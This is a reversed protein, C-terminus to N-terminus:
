SVAQQNIQQLKNKYTNFQDAVMAILFFLGTIALLYILLSSIGYFLVARFYYIFAGPILLGGVILVYRWGNRSKKTEITAMVLASVDLDLLPAPEQEIATILLQYAEAKEKCLACTQVHENNLKSLVVEQIQEDSLHESTM